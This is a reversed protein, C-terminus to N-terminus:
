LCFRRLFRGWRAEKVRSGYTDRRASEGGAMDDQVFHLIESEVMDDQVFHLIESEAMDDQVFHLIESEAM